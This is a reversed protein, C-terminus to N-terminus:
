PESRSGKRRACSCSRTRGSRRFPAPRSLLAPDANRSRRGDCHVLSGPRWNGDANAIEAVVRASHTERDVMPSIFVIKGVARYASLGHGDVRGGPRGAGASSRESRGGSRGLSSRPGRHHVARDRSPRPRGRCRSRGQSRGRARCDARAGRAAAPSGRTARAASRDRKRHARDRVTEPACYRCENQGSSRCQAIALVLQEAM